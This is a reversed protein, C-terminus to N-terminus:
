VCTGRNSKPPNDMMFVSTMAVALAPFILLLYLFALCASWRSSPQATRAGAEVDLGEHAAGPASGSPASSYRWAEDGGVDPPPYM